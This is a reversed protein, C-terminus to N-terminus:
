PAAGPGSNCYENFRNGSATYPRASTAASTWPTDRDVHGGLTSERIVAQGNPTPKTSSADWSRGPQAPSDGGTM